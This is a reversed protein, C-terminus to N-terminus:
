SIRREQVVSWAVVGGSVPPRKESVVKGKIRLRILLKRAWERRIRRRRREMGGPIDSPVEAWEPTESVTAHLAEGVQAATAPGNKALWDLVAQQSPIREYKIM